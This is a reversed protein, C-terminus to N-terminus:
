DAVLNLGYGPHSWHILGGLNMNSLTLEKLTLVHRNLCECLGEAQIWFSDLQLSRLKPLTVNGSINEITLSPGRVARFDQLPSQVKIYLEELKSLSKLLLPIESERIERRRAMINICQDQSLDLHLRTLNLLPQPTPPETLPGFQIRMAPFSDLREAMGQLVHSSTPQVVLTRLSRGAKALAILFMTVIANQEWTASHEDLLTQMPLPKIDSGPM